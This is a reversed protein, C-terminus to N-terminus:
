REDPWTDGDCRAVFDYHMSEFPSVAMEIGNVSIVMSDLDRQEDLYALVDHIGGDREMQVIEALVDKQDISLASIFDYIRKLDSGKPVGQGKIWHNVTVSYRQQVMDDIFKKYIAIGNDM